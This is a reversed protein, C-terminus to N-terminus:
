ELSAMFSKLGGSFAEARCLFCSARWVYFITEKKEKKSVMDTRRSTLGSEGFTFDLHLFDERKSM